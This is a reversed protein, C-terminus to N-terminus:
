NISLNTISNAEILAMTPDILDSNSVNTITIYNLSANTAQEIM